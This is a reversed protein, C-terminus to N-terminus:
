TEPVKTYGSYGFKPFDVSSQRTRSRNLAQTPRYDAVIQNAIKRGATLSDAANQGILCVSRFRNLM